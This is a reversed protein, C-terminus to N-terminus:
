SAIVEETEISVAEFFFQTKWRMNTAQHFKTIYGLIDTINIMDHDHNAM